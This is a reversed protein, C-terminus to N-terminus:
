KISSESDVSETVTGDTKTKKVKTTESTDTKGDARKVQKRSKKTETVTGTIPNKTKDSTVELENDAAILSPSITIGFGIGLALLTNLAKTM